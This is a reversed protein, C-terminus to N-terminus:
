EVTMIITHVAQGEVRIALFGNLCAMVCPHEQPVHVNFAPDLHRKFSGALIRSLNFPKGAERSIGGAIGTCVEYVLLENNM